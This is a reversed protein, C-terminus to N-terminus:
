RVVNIRTGMGNSQVFGTPGSADQGDNALRVFYVGAPVPEGSRDRLDWDVSPLGAGVSIERTLRGAADLVEIRWAASRPAGGSGTLALDIRATTTAPNPTVRFAVSAVEIGSDPTSAAPAEEHVILRQNTAVDELTQEFHVGSSGPWRIVVDVTAHGPAAIHCDIANQSAFGGRAALERTALRFLPDGAHGSVYATVRAGIGDRNSYGPGLDHRHGVLHLRLSPTDTDNVYLYNQTPSHENGAALDLDGDQNADAWAVGDTSGIGFAFVETFNGAGDNIYCFSSDAETFDGNGVAVDLDGDNDADGFALTNCDRFGLTPGATFTGDGNNVYLRNPGSEWNGVAIDLDGDNDVDGWDLTTTDFGGFEARETFNGAGDNVLLVNNSQCCFGGRAFALDQDGDDDFDAFSLAASQAPTSLNIATFTGDGNNRYLASQQNSGLLGNAVALDLDGDRDVDAWAIGNTRLLGFQNSRTFTGDGNNTFLSNQGSRGQAVDQDGDNDYDGFVLALCPGTLPGHLPFTGDGNNRYLEGGPTINAIACDFDGDGDFDGWALGLTAGTGFHPQEM